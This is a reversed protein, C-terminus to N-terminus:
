PLLTQRKQLFGLFLSVKTLDRLCRAGQLHCLDSAPAKPSFFTHTFLRVPLCSPSALCKLTPSAFYLNIKGKMAERPKQPLHSLRWALAPFPWLAHGAMFVPDHSQVHLYIGNM